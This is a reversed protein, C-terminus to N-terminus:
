REERKRLAVLAACGSMVLAVFVFLVASNDGTKPSNTNQAETTTVAAAPAQTTSGTAAATTVTTSATTAETSPATTATTAETSAGTTTETSVQTSAGTTTETSVQTTSTEPELSKESIVILYDSAHTFELSANGDEAIKGSCQFEFKKTSEDYYFLNAYLGANKEDLGISM